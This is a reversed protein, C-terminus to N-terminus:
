CKSWTPWTTWSATGWACGAGPRTWPIGEDEAFERADAELAARADAEIDAPEDSAPCGAPDANTVEAAADGGATRDKAAGKEATGDAGCAAMSLSAVALLVWLFIAHRGSSTRPM